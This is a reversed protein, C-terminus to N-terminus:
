CRTHGVDSSPLSGTRKGQNTKGFGTHALAAKGAGPDPSAILTPSEYTRFIPKWENPRGM